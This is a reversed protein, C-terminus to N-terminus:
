SWVIPSVSGGPILIDNVDVFGLFFFGQYYVDFYAKYDGTASPMTMPLTFDQTAKATFSQVGSTAAKTAGGDKSLFLEATLALGVLSADLALTLKATKAAGPQFIYNAMTGEKIDRYILFDNFQAPITTGDSLVIQQDVPQEDSSYLYVDWLTGNKVAIGKCNGKSIRTVIRSSGVVMDVPPTYNIYNGLSPSWVRMDGQNNNGGTLGSVIFDDGKSVEHTMLYGAGYLAGGTKLGANTAACDLLVTYKKSPAAEFHYDSEWAGNANCKIATIRNINPIGEAFDFGTIWCQDGPVTYRNPGVAANHEGCRYFTVDQILGGSGEGSLIFGFGDPSEAFCRSIVVNSITQANVVYLLFDNGLTNAFNVDHFYLNSLNQGNAIVFFFSGLWSIIAGASNFSGIKINSASINFGGINLITTPGQGIFVSNPQPSIVGDLGVVNGPGIEVTNGNLLYQNILNYDQSGPLVLNAGAKWTSPANYPALKIYAM